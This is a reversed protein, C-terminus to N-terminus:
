VLLLERVFSDVRENGIAVKEVRGIMAAEHNAQRTSVSYAGKLNEGFRAMWVSKSKSLTGSLKSAGFKYTKAIGKGAVKLAAGSAVTTAGAKKARSLGFLESIKARSFTSRLAPAKGKVGKYAGVASLGVM